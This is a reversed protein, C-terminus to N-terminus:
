IIVFIVQTIKAQDPRIPDIFVIRNALSPDLAHFHFPIFSSSFFGLEFM